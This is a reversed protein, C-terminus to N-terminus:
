ATWRMQVDTETEELGVSDLREYFRRAPSPAELAGSREWRSARGAALESM